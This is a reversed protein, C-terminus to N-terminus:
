GDGTVNRIAVMLARAKDLTEEYESTPDSDAVIAGGVNYFAKKGKVLITRIVINLDMPGSFDFYGLSGAYVSRKVPELRDIIKMAEIKPAGTMSGGPFCSRVLDIVGYSDDLQGRITSVLQHVTAYSEIIRLEPVHVTGFKCVRGLDNRVLDVIMNNEAQDKSATGLDDYLRKDEIEDAGRPRTGKIPRSEAVRDHGLRLFREPSSSILACSPLRMFGSFPAPNMRRLECYLDWPEKDFPSEIRHSLCVEFLDGAQIHEKARDVLKCYSAQDTHKAVFSSSRPARGAEWPRPPNKEIADIRALLADRKEEARAQAIRRNPGRGLVSLHSTKTRHCHSLTADYFGVDIDPLALDDVGGDPMQEVFYRAEYGLYGMAGALFPVPQAVYTERDVGHVAILKQLELFPDAVYELTPVGSHGDIITCRAQHPAGHLAKVRKARFVLFPEAAIFSYRGLKESESASDLLLSYPQKAFMESYM